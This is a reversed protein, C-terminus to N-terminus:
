KQKQKILMIVPNSDEKLEAAIEKLKGKLRGRGYDRILDAAELHQWSPIEGNIPRRSNLYVKEENTYDGNYVKSRFFAKEQKDYLLNTTSFEITKEIADMFYYRDTFLSPLLIVEPNMSQISPTRAILPILTHDPLYQYLTDASYETLIYDNFYPMIPHKCQPSYVFYQGEVTKDEIRVYISKKENFPITIEQTISGDQKSILMFSQGTTGPFDDHCILNDKDFNYMEFLSFEKKILLDRKFNGELDYVQIKKAFSNNVFIEEKEEDLIIRSYSSYEENGQGKRNIRKLAKGKRDFIFINGDNNFNTAIIINKGVGWLSGMCLFEDTTELPIYEVDMFDQLILEKYPYKATVDITSLENAPQNNKGCGVIILLLMILISHVNKM